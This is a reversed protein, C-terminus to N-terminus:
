EGGGAGINVGLVGQLQDYFVLVLAAGVTRLANAGAGKFLARMGEERVVKGACDFTNKYIWQERPKESQMQLRRRVTDFPYSAYGAAIATAQACAFKSGFGILGYNDKYPNMARLTDYLGFYVGRYPIIGAVSVGFGNYLGRIGSPGRATKVLCDGLGKFDKKGSGVDSALRTRAYDLPYVISLSGAGALGGSAL